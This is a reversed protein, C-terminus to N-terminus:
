NLLDLLKLCTKMNRTTAVVKTKSEIFNNTLKTRGFGGPCFLYVCNEGFTFVDNKYDVDPLDNSLPSSQLFTIAQFNLEEKHYPNAEVVQDLYAKTLTIVPVDLNLESKIIQQIQESAEDTNNSSFPGGSFVINGSQIYTEVEMFGAKELVTKLEKMNIKNKGSVNIGRLISAYKM